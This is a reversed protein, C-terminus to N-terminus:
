GEEHIHNYVSLKTPITYLLSTVTISNEIVTEQFAFNKAAKELLQFLLCVYADYVMDTFM